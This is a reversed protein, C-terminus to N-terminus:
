LMSVQHVAYSLLVVAYYYVPFGDEQKVNPTWWVLLAYELGILLRSRSWFCVCVCVPNYIM